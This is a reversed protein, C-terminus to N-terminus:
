DKPFVTEGVRITPPSPFVGYRGRAGRSCIKEVMGDQLRTKPGRGFVKKIPTNDSNTATCPNLTLTRKGFWVAPSTWRTTSRSFIFGCDRLFAPMQSRPTEEVPLFPAEPASSLKRVTRCTLFVPTADGFLGQWVAPRFSSRLFSGSEGHVHLWVPFGPDSCPSPRRCPEPPSQVARVSLVEMMSDNNLVVRM